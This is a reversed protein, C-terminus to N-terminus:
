LLFRDQISRDLVWKETEEWVWWFVRMEVSKYKRISSNCITNGKWGLPDQHRGQLEPSLHLLAFISAKESDSESPTYTFFLLVHGVVYM